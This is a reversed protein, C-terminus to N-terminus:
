RSRHPPSPRPQRLFRPGSSTSGFIRKLKITGAIAGSSLGRAIEQPLATLRQELQAHYEEGAELTERLHDKIETLLKEIDFLERHRKMLSM